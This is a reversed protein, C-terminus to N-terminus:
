RCRHNCILLISEDDLMAPSVRLINGEGEIGTGRGQRILIVFLDDLDQKVFFRRGREKQATPPNLLVPFLCLKERVLWLELDRVMGEPMGM